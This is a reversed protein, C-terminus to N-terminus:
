HLTCCLVKIKDTHADLGVIMKEGLKEQIIGLGHRINRHHLLLAPTSSGPLEEEAETGKYLTLTGNTGQQHRSVSQLCRRAKTNDM